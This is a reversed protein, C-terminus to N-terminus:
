SSKLLVLTKKQFIRNYWAESYVSRLTNWECKLIPRYTGLKQDTSWLYAKGYMVDLSHIKLNM